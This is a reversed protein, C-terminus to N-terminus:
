NSLFFFSLSGEKSDVRAHCSSIHFMMGHQSVCFLVQM